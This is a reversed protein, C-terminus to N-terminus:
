RNLIRVSLSGCPNMRLEAKPEATNRATCDLFPRRLLRPLSITLAFTLHVECFVSRDNDFPSYIPITFAMGPLGMPFSLSPLLCVFFPKFFTMANNKIKYKTVLEHIFYYQRYYPDCSFFLLVSPYFFYLFLLLSFFFLLRVLICFLPSIPVHVSSLIEM